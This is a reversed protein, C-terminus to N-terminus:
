DASTVDVPAQRLCWRYTLGQANTFDIEAIDRVCLQYGNPALEWKGQPSANSLPDLPAIGNAPDGVRMRTVINPPIDSMLPPMPPGFVYPVAGTPDEIVANPPPGGM